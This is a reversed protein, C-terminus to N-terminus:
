AEIPGGAVRGGFKKLLEPVWVQPARGRHRRLERRNLRVGIESMTAEKLYFVKGSYDIPAHGRLTLIGTALGSYDEDSASTTFRCTYRGSDEEVWVRDTRTIQLGADSGTFFTAVPEFTPAVLEVIVVSSRAHRGSQYSDIVWVGEIGHRGCLLRRVWASGLLLTALRPLLVVSVLFVGGPIAWRWHSDKEFLSPNIAAPLGTALTAFLVGFTSRFTDISRM